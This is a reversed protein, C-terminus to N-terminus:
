DKFLKTKLFEAVKKVTEEKFPNDIGAYDLTEFYGKSGGSKCLKYYDAWAKPFDESMKQYFGFAGMQALAYDVYYFPNIFIHPKQMWFGGNELFESGEYSRWPMYKEELEKWAKRRGEADLNELFVRHQFEDVCIMYPVAALSAGVHRIRYRDAKDGFFKDMWQYTFYEMSMSHIENIESSSWVMDSLPYTRSSVYAEFAHGAEHTLVDVDASTGNFNSFIFPAKEGSIFACYGGPQKGLKTELDFLQHEVMFDFFEGTEKSLEHYMEQAWKLMQEKNGKPVANGDPDTLQEDYWQLNEIGIRESQEKFMRECIPVLYDLVAKRFVKVDEPTYDYRGMRAYIFTIYGEFGLKQAMEKRNAIMKDYIKDLESSIGEYQDAWAKFAEKRVQRDTSQMYKLLGSLNCKEGKFETSCASVVKNYEQCLNADKAMNEVVAESALKQAMQMNKVYFSGFEKEFEDVFPSDLIAKDAELGLVSLKGQNAYFNSMEDEYFKDTTDISNRIYAVEFMTGYKKSEEERKFFLDRLESYSKANKIDSIYQKISEEEKAFDPRKYEFEKFTKM